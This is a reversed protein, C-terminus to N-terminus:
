TGASRSSGLMALIVIAVTTMVAGVGVKFFSQRNTVPQEHALFEPQVSVSEVPRDAVVTAEDLADSLAAVRAASRLQDQHMLRWSLAGFFIALGGSLVSVVLLFM